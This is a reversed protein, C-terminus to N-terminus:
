VRRQGRGCRLEMGRRCRPPRASARAPQAESELINTSVLGPCLCTVGVGTGEALMEAHLTESIAVVGHKSVNYPGLGASSLHGLISATNVIHGSGASPDHRGPLGPLRPHRGVSKGGPVVGLVPPVTGGHHRYRGCRRQQVACRSPRLASNCADRLPRWRRGRLCMAPSRWRRAEPPRSPECPRTCPRSRSMDAVVVRMSEAAFREALGRGIGSAGGTVVAVRGALDKVPSPRGSRRLRHRRVGASPHLVQVCVQTAGADAHEALRREIADVDGWAVMPTWSGTRSSRRHRRRRLRAAELLEPLRTCPRLVEHRQRRHRPGAASDTTLMVKQEVCLQADPGMVSRAFATHEPTTNYPHAGDTREAALELMRPGLAALIVPVPAPPPVSIYRAADMADLYSRMFSLPKDYPIGRIKSVIVPSSVGLGLTFRGGTQEAVTYAGQKMVGAHRHYVNAIGSALGLTSTVAGIHAALAFPDRGLTEGIWLQSYGLEEVRKAFSAADAGSLAEPAAWCGREVAMQAGKLWSGAWPVPNAPLPGALGSACCADHVEQAQALPPAAHRAHAPSASSLPLM